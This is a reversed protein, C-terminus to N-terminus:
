EEEKMSIASTINEWRSKHGYTGFRGARAALWNSTIKEGSLIM